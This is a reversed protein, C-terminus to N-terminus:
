IIQCVGHNLSPSNATSHFISHASGTQLADPVAMVHASAALSV